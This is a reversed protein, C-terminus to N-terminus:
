FEKGRFMSDTEADKRQGGNTYTARLAATEHSLAKIERKQKQKKAGVEWLSSVSNLVPVISAFATQKSISCDVKIVRAGYAHAQM